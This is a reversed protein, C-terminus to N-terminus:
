GAFLDVRHSCYVQNGNKGDAHKRSLFPKYPFPIRVQSVPQKEMVISYNYPNQYYFSAPLTFRGYPDYEYSKHSCQIWWVTTDQHTTLCVLM